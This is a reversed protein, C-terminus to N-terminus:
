VKVEDFDSVSSLSWALKAQVWKIAIKLKLSLWEWVVLDRPLAIKKAEGRSGDINYYWKECEQLRVKELETELNRHTIFFDKLMRKLYDELHPIQRM